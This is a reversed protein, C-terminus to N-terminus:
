VVEFSKYFIECNGQEELKVVLENLRNADLNPVQEENHPYFWALDLPQEMVIGLFHEKGQATFHLLNEVDEHPIRMEKQVSEYSPALSKSPCICLKDGSTGQNLLLLYRRNGQWKVLLCIKTKLPITPQPAEIVEFNRDVSIKQVELWDDTKHAQDVLQQWQKELLWRPYHKQWLWNYVAKWKGHKGKESYKLYVIDVGEDKMEKEFNDILATIIRQLSHGNPRTKNLAKEVKDYIQDNTQPETGNINHFKPNFRLLFLEQDTLGANSLYQKRTAKLFEEQFPQMSVSKSM